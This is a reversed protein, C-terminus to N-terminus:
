ELTVSYHENTLSRVDIDHIRSDCKQKFYCLKFYDTCASKRKYLHATQTEILTIIESAIVEMRIRWDEIDAPEVERMVRQFKVSKSNSDWNALKAQSIQDIIVTAGADFGMGWAYHILQDSMQHGIGSIETVSGSTKYDRVINPSMVTDATGGMWVRDSLQRHIPIEAGIIVWSDNQTHKIFEHFRKDIDPFGSSTFPLCNDRDACLKHFLIGWDRPSTTPDLVRDAPPPPSFLDYMGKMRCSLFTQIISPGLTISKVKM